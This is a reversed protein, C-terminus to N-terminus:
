YRPKLIFMRDIRVLSGWASSGAFRGEGGFRAEYGLNLVVDLRELITGACRADGRDDTVASCILKGHAFFEVTQGAVATGTHEESLTARLEPYHIEAGLPSTDVSAIVPYAYMHTAIPGIVLEHLSPSSGIPDYRPAARGFVVEVRLYRGPAVPLGVGNGAEVEAGFTIGDESSSVLVRLSAGGTMEAVWSVAGWVNATIGSDHVISWSGIAPAGLLLSGTLDGVDEPEGGLHETVLDVEGVHVERDPCLEVPCRPGRTPDIRAAVQGFRATVWIKGYADVGLGTPGFPVTVNGVFVGANTLHGVTDRGAGHAVWVDGDPTATVGHAYYDGHSFVGTQTGDPAFKRIQDGEAATNWVNGLFDRGVGFSPHTYCSYNGPALPLSSNWRLMPLSSWITDAADLVGTYGGCPAAPETRLLNGTAGDILDFIHNASGGVWVNNTKTVSIQHAGTSHVRVYHLICEDAATTVGGYSDAGGANTWSRVDGLGSSTDILGNANRDVCGGLEKLGVHAVSGMSGQLPVDGFEARNGTWAGGDKDVATGSPDGAMGDPATRYEGLIRGNRADIKVMTKKSAMSVWVFPYPRSASDLRLQDTGHTGVNISFGRAFDAAVTFRVTPIVAARAGTGALMIAGVALLLGAKRVSHVSARQWM